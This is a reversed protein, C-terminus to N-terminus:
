RWGGKIAVIKNRRNPGWAERPNCNQKTDNDDNSDHNTQNNKDEKTESQEKQFLEKFYDWQSELNGGRNFAYFNEWGQKVGM